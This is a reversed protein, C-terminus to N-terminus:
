IFVDYALNTRKHQLIDFTCMKSLSDNFKQINRESFVRKETILDTVSNKVGLNLYIPLHDSVPNAIVASKVPMDIINTWFHDLVTATSFTFRTPVNIIPYMGFEFFQEVCNNVHINKTNLLDYNIDGMLIGKKNM